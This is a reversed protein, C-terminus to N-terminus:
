KNTALQMRASISSCLRKDITDYYCPKMWLGSTRGDHRAAYTSMVLSGHVALLAHPM